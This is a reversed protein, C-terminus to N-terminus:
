KTSRRRARSSNTARNKRPKSGASGKGSRVRKGGSGGLDNNSRKRKSRHQPGGSKGTRRQKARLDKKMRSDVMKYKGKTPKKAPLGKRGVVLKVEKKKTRTASKYVSKIQNIKEKQTTDENTTIAEVKKKVRELKRMARRKKRAKAQLVKKIPKSDIERLKQKYEQVLESRVPINRRCYKAEEEQFWKPALHTDAHAFRNWGEDEIDQRMKDSSVMMSALALGEPDLKIQKKKKQQVDEEEVEDSGSGEEDDDSSLGDDFKKMEEDTLKRKKVSEIIEDRSKALQDVMDTELEKVLDVDEFVECDFFKTAASIKSQSVDMLDVLLGGGGTSKANLRKLAPNANSNKVEASPVVIKDEVEKRPVEEDPESEEDDDKYDKDHEFYRVDAERSFTVSKKARNLSAADEIEQPEEVLDDPEVDDISNLHKKGMIRNLNFLDNEEELLVDNPNIMGYNVREQFAKLRKEEKRRLHKEEKRRAEDEQREIDELQLEPVIEIDDIDSKITMQDLNDDDGFESAAETSDSEKLSKLLKATLDKRLNRRWKLLKLLDKRGLIKLDKCCEKIEDTTSEHQVIDPNGLKIEHCQALFDMHSNTAVFEVDSVTKLIDGDEYGRAKTKKIKNAPKLLDAKQKKLAEDFDSIDAFLASPDFFRPDIKSPKKYNQCVVFIEASEQRSAQPKTAHVKGFLKGLVWILSNYDASRFIKTIFWGGQNLHTCAIKLANVVLVNQSYADHLWNKGVNPAGDHLVVDAKWSALTNEITKSCENTTIDGQFTIVNRIPAIPVLDVGVIVSSVPMYESAVQM